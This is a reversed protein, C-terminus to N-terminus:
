RNFLVDARLVEVACDLRKMLKAILVSKGTGPPGLLLLGKPPRFLYGYKGSSQKVELDLVGPVKSSGATPTQVTLGLGQRLISVCEKLQADYGGFGFGVTEESLNDPILTDSCEMHSISISSSITRSDQLPQTDKMYFQLTTVSEILGFEVISNLATASHLSYSNNNSLCLSSM